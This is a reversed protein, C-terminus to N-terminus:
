HMAQTPLESTYGNAEYELGGAMPVLQRRIFEIRSLLMRAHEPTPEVYIPYSEALSTGMLVSEAWVQAIACYLRLAAERAEVGETEFHIFPLDGVVVWRETDGKSEGRPIPHELQALYLACIKGVGFALLLTKVPPLNSSALFHWADAEMEALLQREVEADEDSGAGLQFDTTDVLPATM